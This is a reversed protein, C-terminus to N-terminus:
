KGKIFIRRTSKRNDYIVMAIFEKGVFYNTYTVPVDPSSSVYTWEGQSYLWKYFEHDTMKTEKMPKEM